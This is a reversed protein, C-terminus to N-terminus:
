WGFQRRIARIQNLHNVDHGALLLLTRKVSERGRESHMGYRNWWPRPVSKLLRLNEERLLRVRELLRKMPLRRYALNKAWKDQDYAQIPCGPQALMMRLRFGYVLETDALHAVIEQVSWKGPSPRRRLEAPRLGRVARALKAPAAAQMKFPDQWGVYSKMRRMYDRFQKAVKGRKM